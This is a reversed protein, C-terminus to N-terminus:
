FSTYQLVLSELVSHIVKGLDCSSKKEIVPTMVNEMKVSVESIVLFMFAAVRKPKVGLQLPGRKCFKGCKLDSARLTPDKTGWPDM